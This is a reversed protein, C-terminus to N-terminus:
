WVKIIYLFFKFFSFDIFKIIVFQFYLNIEIKVINNWKFILISYFCIYFIFNNNKIILELNVYFYFIFLEFFLNIIYVDFKRLLFFM